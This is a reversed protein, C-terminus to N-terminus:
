PVTPDLAELRQLDEVTDIALNIASQDGAPSTVNEIRFRDPHQYFHATVHEREYADLEDANLEALTSSRVMEVSQGSPFTRPFVNTVLNARGEARAAVQAIVSPAMLPSDACVRVVWDCPHVELAACFRGLVNDLAGRFVAVDQTQLYVALPDDSTDTSTVVTVNQPSLAESVADVVHVIVPKGRFPALVKGPFRQSSMRGQIFAKVIM